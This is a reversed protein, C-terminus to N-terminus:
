KNQKNKGRANGEDRVKYVSREKPKRKEWEKIKGDREKVKRM